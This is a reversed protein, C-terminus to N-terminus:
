IQQILEEFLELSYRDERQGIEAIVRLSTDFDPFGWVVRRPDLCEVARYWAILPETLKAHLDFHRRSRAKDSDKNARLVDMSPASIFTLDAFGVSRKRFLVRHLDVAALWTQLSAAGIQWLSWVYHLKFPDTDCYAISHLEEIREAESWRRANAESWYREAEVPDEARDPARESTPAESVVQSQDFNNLWYTKGAASPREVVVIM